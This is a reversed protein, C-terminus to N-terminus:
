IDRLRSIENWRYGSLFAGILIAVGCIGFALWLPFVETMYLSIAAAIVSGSIIMTGILKLMNSVTKEEAYRRREAKKEQEYLRQEMWATREDVKRNLADIEDQEERERCIREYKGDTDCRGECVPRRM